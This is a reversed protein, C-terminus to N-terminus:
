CLYFRLLTSQYKTFWLCPNSDRSLPSMLFFLNILLFIFRYYMSKCLLDINCQLILTFTVAPVSDPPTLVVVTAPYRGPDSYHPLLPEPLSPIMRHLWFTITKIPDKLFHETFLETILVLSDHSTLLNELKDTPSPAPYLVPNHCDIM